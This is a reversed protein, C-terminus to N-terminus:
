RIDAMMNMSRMRPNPAMARQPAKITGAQRIVSTPQARQTSGVRSMGDMSVATRTAIPTSPQIVPAPKQAVKHVPQLAPTLPRVVPRAAPQVNKHLTKANLTKASAQLALVEALQPHPALTQSATVPRAPLGAKKAQRTAITQTRRAHRAEVKATKKAVKKAYSHQVVVVVLALNYLIFIPAAILVQTMVDMAFPVLLSIIISGILAWKEGKIMARPSIPKIRDILSVVIPLQFMLIFTILVNIVFNLYSDASILENLGNVQFGAFFHLAGPIIFTFGFVAGGAAALISGVTMFFVRKRTFVEIFAPRVFMIFNYVILPVSVAIGAVMCIKMIFAFSGSVSNYYLPANLPARLIDLIQEYYLYAVVGAGVLVVATILLRFQLERVHTLLTATEEASLKQQSKARM